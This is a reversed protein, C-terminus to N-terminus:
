ICIGCPESLFGARAPGHPGKLSVPKLLLNCSAVAGQARAQGRARSKGTKRRGHDNSHSASPVDQASQVSFHAHPPRRTVVRAAEGAV